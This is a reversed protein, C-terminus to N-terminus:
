RSKQLSNYLGHREGGYILEDTYSPADDYININITNSRAACATRTKACTVEGVPEAGAYQCDESNRYINVCKGEMKEQLIRLTWPTHFPRLVLQVRTGLEHDDIKGEYGIFSEVFTFPTTSTDWWAEYISVLSGRIGPTFAWNTWTYDLNIFKIWNVQLTQQRSQHIPGVELSSEAWVQSSGDINGTYGTPRNTFRQIGVPSPLTIAAFHWFAINRSRLLTESIGTFSRPM